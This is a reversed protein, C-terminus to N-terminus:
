IGFIKLVSVRDQPQVKAKKFSDQFFDMEEDNKTFLINFVYFVAPIINFKKSLYAIIYTLNLKSFLCCGKLM